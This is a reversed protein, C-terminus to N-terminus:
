PKTLNPPNPMFTRISIGERQATGTNITYHFYKAVQEFPPLLTFDFWEKIEAGPGGGAGMPGALASAAPNSFLNDAFAPDKKVADFLLRMTQAQNEYGFWGTGTGGIKAAAEGLGATDRLGRGSNETSRLFEELMAEDTTMAVYGRGHSYHLARQAAGGPGRQPALKMTYVKRGAVEREATADPQGTMGTLVRMGDIMEQPKPTGILYLTPPSALDALKASRPPRQYSIIDDGFNGIVTKRLDFNPDKDKGAMEMTMKLMGGIQPQIEMLMGEITNWLQQGDARWRTYKMADAPVFAPPAADKSPPALIKMLGKRTSEPAALFVTAQSGDNLEDLAVVMSKLGGLGIAEVIRKPDAGLPNASTEANKAEGDKLFNDLLAKVNLWVHMRSARIIGSVAEYEANEALSTTVSGGQRALVQELDKASSGV